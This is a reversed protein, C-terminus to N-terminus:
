KTMERFARVSVISSHEVEPIPVNEGCRQCEITEGEGEGRGTLKSAESLDAFDYEHSRRKCLWRRYKERLNM